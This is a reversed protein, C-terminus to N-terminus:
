GAARRAVELRQRCQHWRLRRATEDDIAVARRGSAVEAPRRVIRSGILVASQGIRILGPTSTWTRGACRSRRGAACGWSGLLVFLLHLPEAATAGLFRGLEEASWASMSPRTARPLEVTAAPNRELLGRRVATNLASMLTAHVRRLTSVSISGGDEDETALDRYM